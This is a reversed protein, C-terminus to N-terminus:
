CDGHAPIEPGNGDKDEFVSFDYIMLWCLSSIKDNFKIKKLNNDTHAVSSGTPSSICYITSGKFKADKCCKLV